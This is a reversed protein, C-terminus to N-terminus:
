ITKFKEHSEIKKIEFLELLKKRITNETKFNKDQKNLMLDISIQFDSDKDKFKM